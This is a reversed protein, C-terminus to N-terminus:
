SELDFKKKHRGEEVAIESCKKVGSGNQFM